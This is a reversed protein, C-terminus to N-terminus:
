IPKWIGVVMYHLSMGTVMKMLKLISCINSAHCSMQDCSHLKPFFVMIKILCNIAFLLERLIINSLTVFSYIILWKSMKVRNQWRFYFVLSFHFLIGVIGPLKKWPISGKGENMRDSVIKIRFLTGANWKIPQLDANVGYIEDGKKTKLPTKQSLSLFFKAHFTYVCLKYTDTFNQTNERQTKKSNNSSSQLCLHFPQTPTQHKKTWSNIEKYNYTQPTYRIFHSPYYSPIPLTFHLDIPSTITRERMLKTAMTQTRTTM